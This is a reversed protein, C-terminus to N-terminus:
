TRRAAASKALDTAQEDSLARKPIFNFLYDSQFLLIVDRGHTIRVLDRWDLDSSGQASQLQIREPSWNIDTQSQLTKMQRFARRSRPPILIYNVALICALVFSWFLFGLTAGVMIAGASDWETFLTGILAFVLGGLAYSWVSRKWKLSTRFHLRYAAILDAEVPIFSVSRM